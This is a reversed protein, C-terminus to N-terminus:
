KLLFEELYIENINHEKMIEDKFLVSLDIFPQTHNIILSFLSFNSTVRYLTKCRSLLHSEVFAEEAMIKNNPNIVNSNHIGITGISRISAYSCCEYKESFYTFTDMCDTALYFSRLSNAKIYSETTDQNPGAYILGKGGLYRDTKRMHFADINHLNLKNSITDIKNKIEPKIKCVVNYMNYMQERFSINNKKAMDLIRQPRIGNEDIILDNDSVTIDPQDYFYNFINDGQNAMYKPNQWLIYPIIGNNIHIYANYIIGLLNSYFGATRTSKIVIRECNNITQPITQPDTNINEFYYKCFVTGRGVDIDINHLNNIYGSMKLWDVANSTEQTWYKMWNKNKLVNNIIVITNSHALKKSLIIDQKVIDYKFSGDIFIIDYKVQSVICNEDKLINNSNGNILTHRNPYNLDIYDKGAKVSQLVGEDISVVNVQDNLKLFLEASHGALFGIEIVKNITTVDCISKLYTIIQNAHEDVQTIYGQKIKINRNELFKCISNSDNNKYLTPNAPTNITKTVKHISSTLSPAQYVHDHESDMYWKNFQKMRKIKFDSVDYNFHIIYPEIERYYDRYYKGNPFLGLDLFKHNLQKSFRRLYQQDNQFSDINKTITDFNTINITNDNSKMWFFGTCMAPIMDKQQDNQILLETNPELSDLMYQFPDKEFVIDGDIFIIDNGAILEKNIAYIKYSTITAWQKKGETDVHQISRYTVWNNLYKDNTDVQEVENLYYKHKFYNYSESGICYIKLLSAIGLKKMSILLNETLDKYGDNTLTIIKLKNIYINDPFFIKWGISAGHIGHTFWTYENVVNKFDKHTYHIYPKNHIYNMYQIHHSVTSGDYGVFVNASECIYKQILFTVVSKNPITPFYKTLDLNEILKETYIIKDTYKNQINELYLTDTRDAMIVITNNYENYSEITDLLHKEKHTCREDVESKSWRIDGFRFHISMYKSPLQLDKFIHYFAEHLHTLSECINSMLQYNTASTLFNSFCRSANSEAIYIYEHVWSSIDLLIPKRYTLFQKIHVHNYDNNYSIFTDKDIFGIQSFHTGFVLNNTTETNHIIDDYQHFNNGYCIEIGNPLYKKYDDNFFDMFSGYEWSSRGCHCLPNKILLILKRNSINALYIATELSFLQNCFGVGSFLQYILYKM